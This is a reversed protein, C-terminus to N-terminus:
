LAIMAKCYYFKGEVMGAILRPSDELGVEQTILPGVALAGRNLADAVVAEEGRLNYGWCGRVTLEKRMLREFSALPVRTDGTDRGVVALSGLDRTKEIAALLASGSGAAEFVADFSPLEAFRTGTPDVAESFGLRVAMALSEARVDAFVVRAAGLERLWLGILLGISGAGFVLASAGASFGSRRAVHLAVAIPEIFAGTRLDLGPPLPFLNDEPVLCYEAFGGDNRSGLFQYRSCHFPQGSLCGPCAGCPILPLVAVPDGRRFRSGPAPEEVVGAFEHGLVMPHHYSGTRAFRVLDSGCVGAFRVRVLSWGPRARPLPWDREVAYRGPGHIVLAKMTSGCYTRVRARDIGAPPPYQYEGAM